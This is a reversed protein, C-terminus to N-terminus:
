RTRWTLNSSRECECASQGETAFLALFDNCAGHRGATGGGPFRRCIPLARGIVRRWPLEVMQEASLPPANCAFNITDDANWQNQQDLQYTRSQCITRM